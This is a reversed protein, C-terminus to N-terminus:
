TLHAERQLRAPLGHVVSAVSADVGGHVPDHAMHIVWTPMSREPAIDDTM